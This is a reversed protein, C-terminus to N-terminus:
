KIKKIYVKELVEIKEIDFSKEQMEDIIKDKEDLAIEMIIFPNEDFKTDIISIGNKKCYYQVFQLNQYSVPLKIKEGEIIEVINAKQMAENSAETYARILGGTGLLIGGFYRTVIIIVNVLNKKSLLNLMPGGATGSPEGDDSARELVKGDEIVRYAFCHHKADYYKQRVEDIINEVDDKSNVNYIECIFKSKKEIIEAEVREEITRM